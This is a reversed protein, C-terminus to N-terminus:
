LASLTSVGETKLDIMLTLRSKSDPYVTGGNNQIETSLPQLYLTQLNRGPEIERAHHAVLLSSDQLFVDAEIYGVGLNYATYFPVPRAYDNHAFINSADYRSTRECSSLLLLVIIATRTM